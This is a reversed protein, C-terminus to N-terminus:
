TDGGNDGNDDDDNDDDDDDVPEVIEIPVTDIKNSPNVDDHVEDPDVSVHFYKSGIDPDMPVNTQGEIEKASNGDLEDVTFSGLQQDDDPDHTASDGLFVQYDIPDDSDTIDDGGYNVLDYDYRIQDGEEYNGSGINLNEAALDVGPLGDADLTYTVKHEDGTVSVRVYHTGSTTPTYDEIKAVPNGPSTEETEDPVQNPRYLQLRLTGPQSAPDKEATIDITSDPTLMVEYYDVDDAPCRELKNEYNLAAWLSSALGFSTNPEFTSDCVLSPDVDDIDLQLDYDVEQEDGLPILDVRLNYCQAGNVYDVSVTEEGIGTQASTDVSSNTQDYLVTDIEGDAPDFEVTADFKTADDVCIQFYDPQGECVVLNSYSGEDVPAADEWTHNPSFADYCDTEVTFEPSFATNEDPNEDDLVDDPDAIVAIHYDGDSVQSALPAPLTVDEHSGADVNDVTHTDLHIETDGGLEPEDTLVLDVEFDGTNQQGLNYIRVDVDIVAGIQFTDNPPIEVNRPRLDVGDPQEVIDVDFDFYNMTDNDQGCVEFVYQYGDNANNFVGVQQYDVSDDFDLQQSGGPAYMTTELAGRDTDHFTDVLLSDGEGLPTSFYACEGADCLAGEYDGPGVPSASAPSDNGAFQDEECQCYAGQLEVPELSEGKNNSIDLEPLTQDADVHLGVSVEDVFNQCQATVEFQKDVCEGPDINSLQFDKYPDDDFDVSDGSTVFLESRTTGTPNSGAVCITADVTIDDGDDAQSPLTIQDVYLDIDAEDTIDVPKLDIAQSNGRFPQNIAGAPDCVIFFYYTGEDVIPPITVEENFHREGGASLASINLTGVQQGSEADIIPDEDIYIGCFFSSVDETGVNSIVTDVEIIGDLFTSDPSVSFHEVAIDPGDVPEDSIVIPDDAIMVNNETSAEEVDDESYAEVIVWMEKEEGEPPVIPDTLTFEEPGILQDSQALLQTPDSSDVLIAEDRDFEPEDHLYTDYVVDFVDAGGLNALTFGRTFQNLEPFARDPMAELGQVSINPRDEDLNDVRITAASADVTADPDDFGIQDEPDIVVVAHYDDTDVDPAYDTISVNRTEGGGLAIEDDGELEFRQTGVKALPADEDDLVDRETHRDTALYGSVEFPTVVDSATNNQVDFSITVQEDEAIVNAPSVQVSDVSLDVPDYVPFTRTKTDAVDGDYLAEVTIEYGATNTEDYSHTASGEIGDGSSANGDDFDVQWRYDDEDADDAPNITVSVELQVGAYGMEPSLTVDDISGAADAPDEGCGTATVVLGVVLVIVAFLINRGPCATRILDSQQTM